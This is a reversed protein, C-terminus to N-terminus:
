NRSAPMRVKGGSATADNDNIAVQQPAPRPQAPAKAAVKGRTPAPEASATATPRAPLTTAVRRAAPKTAVQEKGQGAPTTQRPLYIVVDRGPKLAEKHGAENWRAVTEAPLDYRAAMQEITDNQKAQVVTRTLVSDDAPAAAAAPAPAAALARALQTRRESAPQKDGDRRVLIAAGSAVQTTHRPLANLRRLDRESMNFRRAVDKVPMAVPSTWLTWSALSDPDVQRMNETFQNANDWPLLIQATGDALIVPKKYSPNLARFDSVSIGALQAAMDVNVDKTITVTDFFPHNAISPLAVGFREPTAIINKLAQLRPVYQATERPMQLDAYHTDLGAAENRQLARSVNGPGWNYAALALQWDDFQDHLEQLYDLAARTSAIVNRRDDRWADQDLNFLTGTSPIFQWLGAAKAHSVADPNFASEVYPLLALETPMDRLELQEVIHFIYRRSREAVQRIADPRRLYWAQQRAVEPTALDPMAFGNRIRDWVDDPAKLTAVGNSSLETMPVGPMVGDRGGDPMNACGALLLGLLLALTLNKRYTM